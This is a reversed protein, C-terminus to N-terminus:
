QDLHIEKITQNCSKCIVKAVTNGRELHLTRQTGQIPHETIGCAGLDEQHQVQKLADKAKGNLIDYPCQEELDDLWTDDDDNDEIINDIVELENFLFRSSHADTKVEYAGPDLLGTVIGLEGEMYPWKIVVVDGVRVQTTEEQDIHDIIELSEAPYEAIFGQVEDSIRVGWVPQPYEKFYEILGLWGYRNEIGVPSTIVVVDSVRLKKQVM